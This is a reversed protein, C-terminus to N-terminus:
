RPILSSANPLAKFSRPEWRPRGPGRESAEGSWAPGGGMVGLSPSCLTDSDGGRKWDGTDRPPCLETDPARQTPQESQLRSVAHARTAVSLEMPVHSDRSQTGPPVELGELQHPPSISPHSGWQGEEM